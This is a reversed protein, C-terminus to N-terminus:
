SLWEKLLRKGNDSLRYTGNGDPQGELAGVRNLEGLVNRIDFGRERAENKSFQVRSEDNLVDRAWRAFTAAKPQRIETTYGNGTIRVAEVNSLPEPEFERIITDREFNRDTARVIYAITIIASFISGSAMAGFVMGVLQYYDVPWRSTSLPASEAVVKATVAV